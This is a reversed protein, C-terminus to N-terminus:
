KKRTADGETYVNFEKGPPAIEFKTNFRDKDRPELTMRFRLGPEGAISTFVLKKDEAKCDYRVVHGENDYNDAMFHATDKPDYRIILLDEHIKKDGYENRNRRIIVEGQLDKQFSVVAKSKGIQGSGEAQWEGLYFNLPGWNPNEACSPSTLLLAFVLLLSVRM